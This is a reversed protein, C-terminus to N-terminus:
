FYDERRGEPFFEGKQGESLIKHCISNRKTETLFFDEGFGVVVLRTM